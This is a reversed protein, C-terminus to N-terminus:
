MMTLLSVPWPVSESIAVQTFSCPVATLEEAYLEPEDVEVEAEVDV